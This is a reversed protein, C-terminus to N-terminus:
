REDEEEVWDTTSTETVTSTSTTTSSSLPVTSSWTTSSAGDGEGMPLIIVTLSSYQLADRLVQTAAQMRFCRNDATRGSLPGSYVTPQAGDLGNFYVNTLMPVIQVSDDDAPFSGETCFTFDVRITYETTDLRRVTFQEGAVPQLQLSFGQEELGVVDIASLIAGGGLAQTSDVLYDLVLSKDPVTQNQLYLHGVGQAQVSAGTRVALLFQCHVVAALHLPAPLLVYHHVQESTGFPLTMQVNGRNDTPAEVSTTWSAGLVSAVGTLVPAAFTVQAAGGYAATVLQHGPCTSHDALFLALIMPTACPGPQYLSSASTSCSRRKDAVHIFLFVAEVDSLSSPWDQQLLLRGQNPELEFLDPALSTSTAALGQIPVLALDSVAQAAVIRYAPRGVGAAAQIRVIPVGGLAQRSLYTYFYNDGEAASIFDQDSVFSRLLSDTAADAGDM